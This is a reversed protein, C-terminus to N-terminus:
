VQYHDHKDNGYQIRDPPQIRVIPTNGDKSIEIILIEKARAGTGDPTCTVIVADTVAEIFGNPTVGIVTCKATSLVFHCFPM